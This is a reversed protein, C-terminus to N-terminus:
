GPRDSELDLLTETKLHDNLCPLREVLLLFPASLRRHFNLVTDRPRRANLALARRKLGRSKIQRRRAAFRSRM